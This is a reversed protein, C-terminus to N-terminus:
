VESSGQVYDWDVNLHDRKFCFKFRDISDTDRELQWLLQCTCVPEPNTLTTTTPLPNIGVGDNTWASSSESEIDAIKMPFSLDNNSNSHSEKGTSKRRQRILDNPEFSNMVNSQSTAHICDPLHTLSQQQQRIISSKENNEFEPIDIPPELSSSDINLTDPINDSTKHTLISTHHPSDDVDTIAMPLQPPNTSCRRRHHHDHPSQDPNTRSLRRESDPLDNNRVSSTVSNELDAKRRITNGFRIRRLVSKRFLTSGDSFRYSSM